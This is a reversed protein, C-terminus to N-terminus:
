PPRGHTTECNRFEVALVVLNYTIQIPVNNLVFLFLFLMNAPDLKRNDRSRRNTTTTPAEGFRPIVIPELMESTVLRLLREFQPITLRCMLQFAVPDPEYVTFRQYLTQATLRRSVSPSARTYDADGADNSDGLIGLLDYSQTSGSRINLMFALIFWCRQMHLLLAAILLWVLQDIDEDGYSFRNLCYFLTDLEM